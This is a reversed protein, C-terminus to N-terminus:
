IFLTKNEKKNPCILRAVNEVIPNKKKKVFTGCSGELRNILTTFLLPPNKEM